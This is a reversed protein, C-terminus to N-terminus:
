AHRGAAAMVEEYLREVRGVAAQLSFTREVWAAAQEAPARLQPLTRLVHVTNAAFREYDGPAATLAHWAPHLAERTAALDSAVCVVRALQAESLVLGFGEFLSPFLFCDMAHMLDPVDSRVGTLVFRETLGAAAIRGEVDARLPGDGVLLFRAAPVHGAVKAAVAVLGAHDKQPAFRGVHGVVLDAPGFGLAERVEDRPRWTTLRDVDVGYHVVTMPARYHGDRWGPFLTDLNARSYGVVLSANALLVRRSIGLYADRAPRLWPRRNVAAALSDMRTNHFGALRAKLGAQRAAYVAPGSLPGLHCHLIDYHQERLLGALRRIFRVQDWKMPVRYLRAGLGRAEDAMAGESAGKCCFDFRFRRRDVTRLVNMLYTEIGGRNLWNIVNLVRITRTAIM